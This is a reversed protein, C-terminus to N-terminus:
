TAMRYREIWPLSNSPAMWNGCTTGSSTERLMTELFVLLHRSSSREGWFCATLLWPIPGVVPLVLLPAFAVGAVYGLGAFAGLVLAILGAIWAGSWLFRSLSVRKIKDSMIKDEPWDRHV